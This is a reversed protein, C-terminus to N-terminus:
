FMNKGLYGTGTRSSPDKHRKQSNASSSGRCVAATCRPWRSAWHWTTRLLSHPPMARLRGPGKGWGRAEWWKEDHRGPKRGKSDRRWWCCGSTGKRRGRCGIIDYKPPTWTRRRWVGMTVVYPQVGPKRVISGWVQFYFYKPEWIPPSAGLDKVEEKSLLFRQISLTRVVALGTLSPCPSPRNWHKRQQTRPQPLGLPVTMGLFYCFPPQKWTVPAWVLPTNRARM